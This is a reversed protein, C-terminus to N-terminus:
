WANGNFHSKARLYSVSQRLITLKDLKSIVEQTFPLQSALRNLEGNLRDRHRKSPNSKVCEPPSQQVSFFSFINLNVTIKLIHCSLWGVQLNWMQSLKGNGLLTNVNLLSKKEQWVIGCFVVGVVSLFTLISDQSPCKVKLPTAVAQLSLGM